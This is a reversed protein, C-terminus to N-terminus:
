MRYYIVVVFLFDTLLIHKFSFFLFLIAFLLRDVAAGSQGLPTLAHHSPLLPNKEAQKHIYKNTNM